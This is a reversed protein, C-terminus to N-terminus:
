VSEKRLLLIKGARSLTRSAYAIARQEQNLVAGIGISSADTFLEFPKKFDSLKLVPVETIAKKIEEFAKQTEESWFFKRSKKKLKCFPKCLDAYNKIFKAYWQTMGLCKSVEKSNKPPRMEVITKVTAEDTSIGEKSIVLGLYKLKDCGFKCKGKNSTLEAEQLLRFVERLHKVRNAFSSSSIIVDDMYVSVFRGRVPKLIMNMVKQFYPAARSLGFPM